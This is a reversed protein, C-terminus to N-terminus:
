LKVVKVADIKPVNAFNRFDAILKTMGTEGNDTQRLPVVRSGSSPNENFKINSNKTCITELHLIRLLFIPYKVHLGIYM